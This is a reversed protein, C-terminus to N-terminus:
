LTFEVAAYDADALAAPKKIVVKVESAQTYEKALKAVEFALKEILKFNSKRIFRTIRASLEDYDFTDQINDSRAASTLNFSLSLDLIVVQPSLREEPKVGIICSVKLGSIVIKNM